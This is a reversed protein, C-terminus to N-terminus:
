TLQVDLFPNGAKAGPLELEFVSWQEVTHPAPAAPAVFASALSFLGGAVVRRLTKTPLKMRLPDSVGFSAEAQNANARPACAPRTREGSWRWGLRLLSRPIPGM